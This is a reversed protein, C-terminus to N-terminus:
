PPLLVSAVEVEPETVTVIAPAALVIVVSVIEGFGPASSCDIVRVAMTEGTGVPEGSPLTLKQSAPALSFTIRRVPALFVPEDAEIRGCGWGATSSLGQPASERMWVMEIVESPVAVNVAVANVTPSWM